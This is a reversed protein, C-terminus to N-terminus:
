TVWPPVRENGLRNTEFSRPRFLTAFQAKHSPVKLGDSLAMIENPFVLNTKNVAQRARRCIEEYDQADMLGKLTNRALATLVFSHAEDKYSREQTRYKEGHFGGPYVRLFYEVLQPFTRYTAWKGKPDARLNELLPHNAADGQVPELRAHSLSIVREGAGVFFIHAHDGKSDDLVLGLGWEPAGPLRVRQGKKVSLFSERNTM